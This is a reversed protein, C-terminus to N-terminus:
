VMILYAVMVVADNDYEQFGYFAVKLIKKLTKKMLLTM